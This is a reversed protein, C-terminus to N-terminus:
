DNFKSWSPRLRKNAREIISAPSLIMLKDVGIPKYIWGYCEIYVYEAKTELVDIKKKKIAVRAVDAKDETIM